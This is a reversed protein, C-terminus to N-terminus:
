RKLRYWYISYQEKVVDDNGTKSSIAFFSPQQQSFSKRGTLYNKEQELDSKNLQLNDHQPYNKTFLSLMQTKDLANYGYSISHSKKKKEIIPRKM